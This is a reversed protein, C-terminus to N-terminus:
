PLEILVSEIYNLVSPYHINKEIQVLYAMKEYNELHNFSILDESIVDIDIFTYTSDNIILDFTPVELYLAKDSAIYVWTIPTNYQYYDQDLFNEVEIGVKLKNGKCSLESLVGHGTKMSLALPVEMFLSEPTCHEVIELCQMLYLIDEYNHLLIKRELESDRTIEYELYLDVSEKGSITDQREIGLFKEVTKLKFDDFNFFSKNHKVLRMLDLNRSKSMQCDINHIHMRSNTYPIDFARGNFSIYYRKNDIIEKFATLLAKEERRNECFLQSLIYNCGDYTIYGILIVNSKTHSLGTTEIDFLIFDEKPIFPSLTKPYEFNELVKRHITKL